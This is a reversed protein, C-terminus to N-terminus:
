LESNATISGGGTSNGSMLSGSFGATDGSAVTATITVNDVGAVGNTTAAAACASVTTDTGAVMRKMTGPTCAITPIARLTSHLVAKCVAVTSSQASCMFPSDATSSATEAWKWYYRQQMATEVQQTRRSFAKARPDNLGVFTATGSANSSVLSTLASNRTLQIGSFAVYDSAGATGVPTYCLAVAVETAATPIPVAVTYRGITSVGGLPVTAAWNVQGTWGSSGGGGANLGYAANTTGQDTGTGTIVYATMNSSAASFLAGTAAHFDLEATQGQFQYSNVTELEQMMCMQVVGTQGSTRQMSFADGYASPLDAATTDQSVTMATSAGSWYAWRDPGGYTVTTTVSSGTTGRQFLNTTADGGILQNDGNNGALTASYNGLLTASAYRSQATPFGGVVDQFLDTSGISTVSALNFSSQALAVAGLSLAGVAALLLKKM